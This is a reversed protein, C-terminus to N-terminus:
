VNDDGSTYKEWARSVGGSGPFLDILTDNRAAQLLDRFCWDLFAPPKAGIVYAPDTHRARASGTFSDIGTTGELHPRAPKYFVPEWSSRAYRAKCPIGGKHWSAVRWGSIGSLLSVLLPISEASANLIWGDYECLQAVLAGHDVEGQYDPHDRYYKQSLGVYPPDAYALRKPQQAVEGIAVQLRFRSMAQRCRKSCTKRRPNDFILEAKCWPCIM